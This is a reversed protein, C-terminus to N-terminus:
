HLAITLSYAGSLAANGGDVIIFYDITAPITITIPTTDTV